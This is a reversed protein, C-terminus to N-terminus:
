GRGGLGSEGALDGDKVKMRWVEVYGFMVWKVWFVKGGCFGLGLTNGQMGWVLRGKRGDIGGDLVDWVKFVECFEVWGWCLAQWVM